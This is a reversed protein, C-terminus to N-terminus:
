GNCRTGGFGTIFSTNMRDELKQVHCHM